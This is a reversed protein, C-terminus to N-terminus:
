AFWMAWVGTSAAKRDCAQDGGRDWAAHCWHGLAQHDPREAEGGSDAGTDRCSSVYRCGRPADHLWGTCTVPSYPMARTLLLVSRRDAIEVPMRMAKLAILLVVLRFKLARLIKLPSPRM